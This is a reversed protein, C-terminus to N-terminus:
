LIHFFPMPFRLLFDDFFLYEFPIIQYTRLISGYFDIQDLLISIGLIAGFLM